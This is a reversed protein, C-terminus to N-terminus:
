ECKTARWLRRQDAIWWAGGAQSVAAEDDLVLERSWDRGDYRWVGPENDEDYGYVLLDDDKGILDRARSPGLDVPDWNRGNYSWVGEGTDGDVAAYLTESDPGWLDLVLGPLSDGLPIWGSGDNHYVTSAGEGAAVVQDSAGFVLVASLSAAGTPADGETWVGGDRSFIVADRTGTEPDIRVGVASVAGDSAAGLDSFSVEEDLTTETLEGAVLSLVTGDGAALVEGDAGSHVATVSVSSADLYATAAGADWLGFRGEGVIYASDEDTAWLDATPTLGDQAFVETFGAEGGELIRDGLLGGGLWVAGAEPSGIVRVGDLADLASSSWVVTDGWFIRTAETAGDEFGLAWLQGDADALVRGLAMDTGTELLTILDPDGYLITGDEGSVVVGDGYPAVDLLSIESDDLGPDAPMLVDFDEVWLTGQDGVAVLRGDTSEALARLQGDMPDYAQELWISGDWIWLSPRYWSRECDDCAEPANSLLVVEGSARVLLDTLALGSAPTMDTWDGDWRLVDTATIAWVSGDSAGQVARYGSSDEPGELATWVGGVRQYLRQDAGAALGGGASDAWIATLGSAAIPASTWECSPTDDKHHCGALLATIWFGSM